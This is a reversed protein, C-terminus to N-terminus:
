WTPLYRDLEFPTVQSQYESWEHRKNRLFWEFIHDGLTTRVLESGEMVDLAEDLSRPLPEIGMERRERDDLDFRRGGPHAKECEFAMANVGRSRYRDVAAVVLDFHQDGRIQVQGVHVSDHREGTRHRLLTIRTREPQDTASRDADSVRCPARHDLQLARGFDTGLRGDVEGNVRRTSCPGRNRQHIFSNEVQGAM